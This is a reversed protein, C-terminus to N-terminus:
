EDSLDEEIIDDEEIGEEGGNDGGDRSRDDDRSRQRATMGLASHRQEASSPSVRGGGHHSSIPSLYSSSGEARTTTPTARQKQWRYTKTPMDSMEVINQERYYADHRLLMDKAIKSDGGRLETLYDEFDTATTAISRFNATTLKVTMWKREGSRAAEEETLGAEKLNTDRAHKGLAIAVQFANRIQRGNWTTETKEHEKYHREAFKLLAERDFRIQLASTTNDRKIKDLIFGWIRKTEPLRIDPYALSVHIRSKFAEDMVGVRNTTLFLIGSYYEM